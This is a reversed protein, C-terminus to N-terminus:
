RRLLVEDFDDGAAPGNAVGGMHGDYQKAALPARFLQQKLLRRTVRKVFALYGLM